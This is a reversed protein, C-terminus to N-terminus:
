IHEGTNFKRRAWEENTPAVNAGYCAQFLTLGDWLRISILASSETYDQKLQQRIQCGVQFAVDVDFRRFLLARQQSQIGQIAADLADPSTTTEWDALTSVLM